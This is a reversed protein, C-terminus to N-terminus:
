GSGPSRGRGSGAGVRRSSAAASPHASGARARGSIEREFSAALEEFFDEGPDFSIVSVLLADQEALRERQRWCDPCEAIHKEVLKLSPGSLEGDTHAVLQQITLHTV